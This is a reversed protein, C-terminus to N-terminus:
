RVSYTHKIIGDSPDGVYCPRVWTVEGNIFHRVHGRRFHYKKRTHDGDQPGSHGLIARHPRIKVETYAVAGPLGKKARQRNLKAPAAVHEQHIGDANLRGLMSMLPDFLNNAVVPRDTTNYIVKCEYGSAKANKPLVLTVGDWVFYETLGTYRGYESFEPVKQLETHTMCRIEAGCIGEEYDMYLYGSTINVGNEEVWSHEMWCYRAPLGILGVEYGQAVTLSEEKLEDNSISGFDFFQCDFDEQTLMGLFYAAAPLAEGTEEDYYLYPNNRDATPWIFKSMGGPRGTSLVVCDEHLTKLLRNVFM